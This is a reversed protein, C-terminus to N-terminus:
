NVEKSNNDPLTYKQEKVWAQLKDIDSLEDGLQNLKQLLTIVLKRVLEGFKDIDALSVDGGTGHVIKSRQKYFGRIERDIKLREDLNRGAIFASREALMDAIGRVQLKEENPEGGVLTELAFSIKAFKSNNTDPKTSEALWHISDRLKKEMKNYHTKLILRKILESQAQELKSLIHKKLEVVTSGAGIRSLFRRGNISMPTSTYSIVDGVVGVRWTNSNRGFPFCFARFIELVTDVQTRAYSIARQNDGPSRVRALVHVNRTGEHWFVQLNKEWKKLENETAERFTVYLFEIPEGQHWLNALPIDIDQWAEFKILENLLNNAKDILSQNNLHHGQNVSVTQDELFDFMLRKNVEDESLMQPNLTLVGQVVEEFLPRGDEYGYIPYFISKPSNQNWWNFDSAPEGQRFLYVLSALKQALKNLEKKGTSPV